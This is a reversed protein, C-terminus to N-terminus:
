KQKLYSVDGRLRRLERYINSLVEGGTNRPNAEPATDAMSLLAAVNLASMNLGKATPAGDTFRTYSAVPSDALITDYQMGPPSGGPYYNSYQDGAVPKAM